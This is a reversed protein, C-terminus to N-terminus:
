GFPLFFLIVRHADWHINTYKLIFILAELDFLADAIILKSEWAIIFFIHENLDEFIDEM